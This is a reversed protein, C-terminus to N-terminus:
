YSCRQLSSGFCCPYIVSDCRPHRTVSAPPPSRHELPLLSGAAVTAERREVLCRGGPHGDKAGSRRIRPVLRRHGSEMGAEHQRMPSRSSLLVQAAARFIFWLRRRCGPSAGM